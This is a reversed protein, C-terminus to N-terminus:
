VWENLSPKRFMNRKNHQKIMYIAQLNAIRGMSVYVDPDTNVLDTCNQCQKVAQLGHQEM